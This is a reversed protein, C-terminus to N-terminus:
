ARGRVRQPLLAELRAVDGAERGLADLQTALGPLLDLAWLTCMWYGMQVTPAGKEIGVMTTMSIGAKAALDAQTLARARRVVRIRAALALLVDEAEFPLLDRAASKKMLCFNDSKRAARLHNKVM